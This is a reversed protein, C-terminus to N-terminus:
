NDDYAEGGEIVSEILQEFKSQDRDATSSSRKETAKRHKQLGHYKVHLSVDMAQSGGHIISPNVMWTSGGVHRLLDASLLGDFVRNVTASAVGTAKSIDTRTARFENMGFKTLNLCYVIVDFSKSSLIKQLKPLLRPYLKLWDFRKQTYTESAVAEYIYQGSVYEGTDPDIFMKRRTPQQSDSNM